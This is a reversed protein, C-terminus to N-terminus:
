DTLGAQANQKYSLRAKQDCVSRIELALPAFRTSRGWGCDFLQSAGVSTNLWRHRHSTFKGGDLEALFKRVRNAHTVERDRKTRAVRRDERLAPRRSAPRAYSQRETAARVLRSRFLTTYPFLTSRPPRRIM